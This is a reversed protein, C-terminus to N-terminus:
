RVLFEQAHIGLVPKCNLFHCQNQPRSAIINGIQVDVDFYKKEEVFVIDPKWHLISSIRKRFDTATENKM